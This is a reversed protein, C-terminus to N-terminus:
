DKLLLSAKLLENRKQTQQLHFWFVEWHDFVKDAKQLFM